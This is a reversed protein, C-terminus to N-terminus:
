FLGGGGGGANLRALAAKYSALQAQQRATGPGITGNVRSAKGSDWYLSRYASQTMSIADDVASGAAKAADITAISLTDTLSLGFSGGPTVKPDSAKRPSDAHIRTPALGLKALADRDQPGATLSLTHGPRVSLSLQVNGDDNRPTMVTVADSGLLQQLKLRLSTMTEGADITVRHAVQTDLQVTFSDGAVLGFQAALSTAVDDNLSGRHLGLAGLVSNGGKATAVLVPDSVGETVGFQSVAGVAGTSPDIRAVFGDVTGQRQGSLSGTTRGGVYITGNVFAVSDAQDEGATGIYTTSAGSFDANLRTVFADTGHDPALGSSGPVAQTTAGVVAIHGDVAVALARANASGFDVSGLDTGLADADVKRLQATGNERTLALLRGDGDIALANVRGSGSGAIARQEILHGQADLHALYAAGGNANDSRGGVYISGDAAAVVATAEDNGASPLATAFKREGTADYRALMMASGSIATGDFQGTVTGVVVVDGQPTLSIAAGESTGTPGLAHQWVVKGESDLKSLFLDDHGNVRSTGIDGQTTGVVYTFGDAATVTARAQLKANVTVPAAAAAPDATPDYTEANRADAAKADAKAQAAATGARDTAVITGLMQRDLSASPDAVRSLSAGAPAGFQTGSGVVTLADGAGAQQLSVTTAATTTMTLGYKDGIMAPAFKVEYNFGSSSAAIADNFAQAVQKLTPPQQPLSSLDVTVSDHHTGNDLQVTFREQGTIGPLGADLDAVVGTGTFSGIDKTALGPASKVNTTPPGFALAVKGGPANALFTRLDALGKAFARQLGQREVDGLGAQQGARALAKLRDLARYTVFTTEVDDSGAAESPRPADVITHMGRVSAAQGEIADLSTPDKAATRWPAQTAPTTFLKRAARAAATEVPVNATGFGFANGGGGLLSLGIIGGYIDVM